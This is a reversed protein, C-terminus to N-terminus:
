LFLVFSFLVFAAYSLFFIQVSIFRFLVIFKCAAAVPPLFETLTGGLIWPSSSSAFVSLSLLALEIATLQTKQGALNDLLQMDLELNSLAAFVQEDRKTRSTVVKRGNNNNMDSNNKNNSENNRTTTIASTLDETTTLENLLDNKKGARARQIRWKFADLMSETGDNIDYSYKKSNNTGWKLSEGKSALFQVQKLARESMSQTVQTIEEQILMDDADNDGDTTTTPPVETEPKVMEVEEDKKMNRMSSLHLVFPSAVLASSSSSSSSSSPVALSFSSSLSQMPFSSVFWQQQQQQNLFLSSASLSSIMMLILLKTM